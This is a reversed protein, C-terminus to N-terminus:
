KRAPRGAMCRKAVATLMYQAAPSKIKARLEEVNPEKASEVLQMLLQEELMARREATDAKYYDMLPDSHKERFANALEEQMKKKDGPM